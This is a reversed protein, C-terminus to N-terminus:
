VDLLDSGRSDLERFRRFSDVTELGALHHGVADLDRQRTAFSVLMEIDEPPLDAVDDETIAPSVVTAAVLFRNYEEVKELLDDPVKGETAAKTAVEILDNPLQGAKLMAPLNPIKISVITGSPLTIGEHVANKKWATKTTATPTDSETSM